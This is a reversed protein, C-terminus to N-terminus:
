ASTSCDVVLCLNVEKNLVGNDFEATKPSFSKFHQPLLCNTGSYNPRVSVYERLSDMFVRSTYELLLSTNSM